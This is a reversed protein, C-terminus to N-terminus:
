HFDHSTYRLGEVELLPYVRDVIVHTVDGDSAKEVIGECCLLSQELLTARFKEFVRQWIIANAFGLEDELTVFLVGSATGPMQRSIVLGAIKVRRKPPSIKVARSTLIGSRTAAERLLQMPHQSLCIGQADYDLVVEEWRSERPLPTPAEAPSFDAADQLALAQIEWLARRRELGLSELANAGALLFLDRQSLPVPSLATRLRTVL